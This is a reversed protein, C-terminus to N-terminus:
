CFFLGDLVRKDKPHLVLRALGDEMQYVCEVIGLSEVVPLGAVQHRPFGDVPRVPLHHVQLHVRGFDAVVGGRGVEDVVPGGDVAGGVSGAVRAGLVEHFEGFRSFVETGVGGDLIKVDEGVAFGVHGNECVRFAAVQQLGGALGLVWADGLEAVHGLGDAVETHVSGQRNRCESAVAPEEGGGHLLVSQEVGGHESGGSRRLPLEHVIGDALHRLVHSVALHGDDRASLQFRQVGGDLVDPGAHEWLNGEEM